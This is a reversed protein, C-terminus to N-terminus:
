HTLPFSVTERRGGTKPARYRQLTASQAGRLLLEYYFLHDGRIAPRESRLVAESRTADVEIVKLPELLGTVRQATRVARQTLAAASAPEPGAARAVGLETALCGVTDARDATL